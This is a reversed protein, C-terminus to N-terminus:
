QLFFSFSDYSQCSSNEILQKYHVCSHNCIVVIQTQMDIKLPTFTNEIDM